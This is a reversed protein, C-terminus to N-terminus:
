ASAFKSMNKLIVFCFTKNTENTDKNTVIKITMIDPKMAKKMDM